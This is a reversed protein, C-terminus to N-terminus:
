GDYQLEHVSEAVEGEKGDNHTVIRKWTWKKYKKVFALWEELDRDGQSNHCKGCAPIPDQNEVDPYLVHKPNIDEDSGCYICIDQPPEPEEAGVPQEQDLHAYKGTITETEPETPAEDGEDKQLELIIEPIEHQMRENYSVITKWKDPRNQKVTSLWDKLDVDPKRSMHCSACAKVAKSGPTVHHGKRLNKTEGCYVCRESSTVKEEPPLMTIVRQPFPIEIDHERYALLIDRLIVDDVVLYDKSKTWGRLKFNVSSDALETFEVDPAPDELIRPESILLNLAIRVAKDVDSDYAIGVAVEVRRIGLGTENVIAQGWILSNPITILIGDPTVLETAMVGIGKVKGWQDNVTVRDGVAFPRLSALWVGAAVNSFTDKLGFALILGIAASMGLVLPGMDFGLSGIFILVVAIKLLVGLFSALFEVILAPAKAKEMGHKMVKVIFQAVKLGVILLVVALILQVPTISTYPIPDGFTEEITM